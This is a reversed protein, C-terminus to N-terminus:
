ALIDFADVSLTAIPLGNLLLRVVNVAAGAGTGDADWRLQGTSTNYLFQGAAQDALPNAGVVLQNAALAGAVLGGGFGSAHIEILDGQVRRWDTIVDNGGGVASFVFRDAGVGGTLVDFLAGGELSDNGGDGRLQDTGGGGALTDNGSNGTLVTSAGDGTLVDAFSSGIVREINSYTDGNAESRSGTGALLDVTVGSSAFRFNATDQGDGGNLADAGFGGLLVDDGTGGLLNDNGAEGRIIDNGAAGDFADNGVGLYVTDNFGTGQWDDGFSSASKNLGTERPDFITTFITGAIGAGSEWSVAFRGDALTAITPRNKGGAGDTNVAFVLGDATGDAFMVQGEINGADNKWVTVFRGDQLAATQVQQTTVNAADTAITFADTSPTGDENFIRGRVTHLTFQEYTVLLRGDALATVEPFAASGGASEVDILGTVASGTPTYIRAWIDFSSSDDWAVAYNGNALTTIEVNRFQDESGAPTSVGEGADANTVTSQLTGIANYFKLILRGNAVSDDAMAIVFGNAGAAVVPDHQIGAGGSVLFRPISALSGLYVRAYVDELNGGGAAPEETWVFVQRGDPMYVSAAQHETTTASFTPALTPGVDAGAASYHRTEIDTYAPAATPFSEFFTLEFQGNPAAALWPEGEPNEANVLEFDAASWKVPAPM